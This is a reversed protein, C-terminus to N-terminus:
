VDQAVRVSNKNIQKIELVLCHIIDQTGATGRLVWCSMQRFVITEEVPRSLSVSYDFGEAFSVM